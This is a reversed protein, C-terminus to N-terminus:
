LVTGQTRPSTNKARIHQVFGYEFDLCRTIEDIWYVQDFESGTGNLQIQDRATITTEGPLEINLVREHKSLESLKQNAWKLAQDPTLGPKSFVYNQTAGKAAGPSKAGPLKVIRIYARGDKLSTSKVTVQIDKALTLSREMTLRQANLTPVPGPTYNIAYVKGTTEDPRFHLTNGTVWVAYNEEQALYTLLDWETTQHSLNDNTIRDHDIEYYKGVLTSTPVTDIQMGHGQALTTAIQSSTQNTYAAQTKTDIFLATKDRGDFRVCNTTLDVQLHDVIGLFMSTWAPTSAGDQTLSMQVELQIDQQAAWWPLGYTTDTTLAVDGSVTDAAYHNNSTIECRLTGTIVNGNALLRLRPARWTSM